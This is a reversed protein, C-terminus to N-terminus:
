TVAVPVPQTRKKLKLHLQPSNKYHKVQITDGAQVEGALVKATLVDEVYQQIARRLPRVGYQPDYGQESLFEKAKPTMELRYGLAAARHYLQVLHIEIIQHIKAKDLSNFTIVGDLRNIFEPKFTKQLAKQVKAKIAAAHDAKQIQTAFGIDARQLDSAGVNSTM